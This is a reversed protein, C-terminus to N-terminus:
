FNRIQAEFKSQLHNILETQITDIEEATLTRDNSQYIIHFALNKKNQGLKDGSYVDFLEVSTILENFNKLAERIDNYLIKADIVFALDRVMPPYKPTAHYQKYGYNKALKLLENFSLEVMAVIKKLGNSKAINESVKAITGINKGLVNIGAKLEKDSYGIHADTPMFSTEM